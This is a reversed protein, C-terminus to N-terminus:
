PRLRNIERQPGIKGSKAMKGKIVPTLITPASFDAPTVKSSSSSPRPTRSLFLVGHLIEDGILEGAAPLFRPERRM